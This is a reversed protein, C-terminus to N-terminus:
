CEREYRYLMEDRKGIGMFIGMYIWFIVSFSPENILQSGGIASLLYVIVIIYATKRLIKDNINKFMKTIRFFILIILLMGSIGLESLILIYGNHPDILGEIGDVIITRSTYAREFFYGMGSGILINNKFIYRGIGIAKVRENISDDKFGIFLRSIDFKSMVFIAGMFLIIVFIWKKIKTINKNKVFLIYIIVIILSNITASRSLLIMTAVINLLVSILTINKWVKDKTSYYTFFCIPLTINFYYSVTISSGLMLSARYQEEYVGKVDNGLMSMLVGFNMSAILALCSYILNILVIIKLLKDLNNIDKIDISFIFMMPVILQLMAYIYQPFSKIKFGGLLILILLLLFLVPLYKDYLKIKRTVIKPRSYFFKLLIILFFILLENSIGINNINFGLLYKIRRLAFLSYLMAILLLILSFPIKTFSKKIRLYQKM